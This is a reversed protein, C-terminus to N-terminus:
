PHNLSNELTSIVIYSGPKHMMKLASGRCLIHSWQIEVNDSIGNEYFHKNLPHLLTLETVSIYACIETDKM